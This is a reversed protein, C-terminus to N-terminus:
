VRERTRDNELNHLFSHCPWCLSILNSKQDKGGDPEFDDSKFVIHHITPKKRKVHEIRPDDENACRNGYIELVRAKNEQWEPSRM